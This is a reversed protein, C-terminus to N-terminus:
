GFPSSPHQDDKGVLVAGLLTVSNNNESIVLAEFATKFAAWETATLDARDTGAVVLANNTVDPCPIRVTFKQQTTNDKYGILWNLESQAAMATANVPPVETSRIAEIGSSTLAGISIGAVATKFNSFLTTTAAINGANLQPTDLSFQQPEGSYDRLRLTMLSRNVTAM